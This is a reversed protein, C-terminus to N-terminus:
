LCVKLVPPALACRPLRSNEYTVACHRAACTPMVIIAAALACADFNLSAGM